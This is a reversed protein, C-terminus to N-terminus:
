NTITIAYSETPYTYFYSYGDTTYEQYDGYYQFFIHEGIYHECTELPFDPILSWQPETVWSAYGSESVLQSWGYHLINESGYPPYNLTATLYVSKGVVNTAGDLTVNLSEMWGYGCSYYVSTSYCMPSESTNSPCANSWLSGPGVIVTYITSNTTTTTNTAKFTNIPNDKDSYNKNIATYVFSKTFNQHTKGSIVSTGNVLVNSTNSTTFIPVLDNLNTSEPLQLVINYNTTILNNNRVQNKTIKGYVGNISFSTIEPPPTAITGNSCSSIFIPLILIISVILNTCNKFKYAMSSKM